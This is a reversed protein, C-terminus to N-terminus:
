GGAMGVFRYPQFWINFDVSTELRQLIPKAFPTTSDLFELWRQVNGQFFQHKSRAVNSALEDYREFLSKL